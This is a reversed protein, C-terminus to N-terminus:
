GAHAGFVRAHCTDMVGDDCVCLGARRGRVVNAHLSLVVTCVTGYDRCFLTFGECVEWWLM